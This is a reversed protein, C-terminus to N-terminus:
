REAYVPPLSIMYKSLVDLWCSYVLGKAAPTTTPRSNLVELVPLLLEVNQSDRAKNTISSFMLVDEVNTLYKDYIQQIFCKAIFIISM